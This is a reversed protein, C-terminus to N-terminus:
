THNNDPIPPLSILTEDTQVSVENYGTCLDSIFFYKSEIVSVCHVTIVERQRNSVTGNCCQEHTQMGGLCSHRLIQILLFSIVNCVITAQYCDDHCPFTMWRLDYTVIVLTLGNLQCKLNNGVEEILNAYLKIFWYSLTISDTRQRCFGEKASTKLSNDDIRINYNANEESASNQSIMM